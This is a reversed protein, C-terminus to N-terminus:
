GHRLGMPGLKYKKCIPDQIRKLKYAYKNLIENAMSYDVQGRNGYFGSVSSFLICHEITELDLNSILNRLGDVKVEVVKEYDELSKDEIKKDALNGAAHIIGTIGGFDERSQEITNSISTVDTVDCSYYEVKSALKRIEDINEKAERLNIIKSVEAQIAGPKLDSNYKSLSAMLDKKSQSGKAWNPEEAYIDTRGLLIFKCGYNRAMEKVCDSAIGRAGGTVLIVSDKSPAKFEGTYKSKDDLSLVRRSDQDVYGVEIDNITKESCEQAIISVATETDLKHSIDITKLFAKPWEYSLSKSFGFLAGFEPLQNTDETSLSGDLRVITIFNGLSLVDKFNKAVFYNLQLLTDADITTHDKATPIIVTDPKMKLSEYLDKISGDSVDSLEIDCLSPSILSGSPLACLVVNHGQSKLKDKLAASLEGDDFILVESCDDLIDFDGVLNM